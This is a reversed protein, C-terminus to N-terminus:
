GAERARRGFRHERGEILRRINMRHAYIVFLALGITLWLLPGSDGVAVVVPVVIAALMSALSVYGTAILVFVWVALGALMAWPSLALLVGASTAVGKGGRFGVYISYVHGLIAAAGYAFAWWPAPHADWAPFLAAPAWGKLVDVVFIPLAGKWGLVRYANTAGLNGSGHERLDIGRALRAVVYSTPFAGTLYAGLLLVAIRLEPSM